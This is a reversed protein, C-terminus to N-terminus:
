ECSKLTTFTALLTNLTLNPNTSSYVLGSKVIKRVGFDYIQIDSNEVQHDRYNKLKDKESFSTGVIDHYMWQIHNHVIVDKNSTLLLDILCKDGKRWELFRASYGIGGPIIASGVTGSIMSTMTATTFAGVCVFSVRQFDKFIENLEPIEPFADICIAYVQINEQYPWNGEM